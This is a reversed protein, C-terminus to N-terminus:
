DMDGHDMDGHDMDGHDMDGHDMDGHDMDGHDMDGHDMDGHDMDGHDESDQAEPGEEDQDPDQDAPAEDGSDPDAPDEEDRDEDGDQDDTAEAPGGMAPDTSREVADRRQRETDLLESVAQDIVAGVASAAMATVRARPGPLQEWLLDVTATLRVGPAGCIVMVDADAASLAPRWGRERVVREAACRTASWGPVPVLLVAVRRVAADALRRTLDM